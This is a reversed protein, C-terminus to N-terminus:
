VWVPVVSLAPPYWCWGYGSSYFWSGYHYPLWGWPEAAVWTWGYSGGWAWSGDRYPAWGSPENPIWSEGYPAVNAWRGYRDLDDYGAVSSPVNTDDNLAAFAARDRETNFRDFDDRAVEDGFTVSPSAAAGRAVVTEGPQATFTHHPTVIAAQGSRATVSTSGDAAVDIRYSGVSDLRVTVSPAVVDTPTRDAHLIAVEVLGQALQLEQAKADNAAIRAQVAGSLRLATYGDLQIEALTAPDTTSIFDGAMLPANVVGAVQTQIGHTDTRTVVVAGHAIASIRAVGPAVSDHAAAVAASAAICSMFFMGAVGARLLLM